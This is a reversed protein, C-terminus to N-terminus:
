VRLPLVPHEPDAGFLVALEAPARVTLDEEELSQGAQLFTSTVDGAKPRFGANSAVRLLM